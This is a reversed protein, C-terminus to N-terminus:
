PEARRPSAPRWHERPVGAGCNSCQIRLDATLALRFDWMGRIGKRSQVGISETKCSPCFYGGIHTTREDM